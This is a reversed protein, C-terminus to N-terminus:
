QQSFMMLVHFCCQYPCMLPVRWHFPSLAGSPTSKSPGEMWATSLERQAYVSECLISAFEKRRHFAEETSKSVLAHRTVILGLEPPCCKVSINCFFIILLQLFQIKSGHKMIWSVSLRFGAFCHCRRIRSSPLHIVCSFPCVSLKEQGFCLNVNCTVQNAQCEYNRLRRHGILTSYWPGVTNVKSGNNILNFSRYYELTVM